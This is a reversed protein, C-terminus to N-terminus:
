CKTLKALLTCGESRRITRLAIRWDHAAFGVAHHQGPRNGRLLHGYFQGEGEMVEFQLLWRQGQSNIEISEGMKWASAKQEPSVFIAHDPHHNLYFSCEYSEEGEPPVTNSLRLTFHIEGEKMEREVEVKKAELTLSHLMEASGWYLSFPADESILLPSTLSSSQRDVLFPRILAAHLHPFPTATLARQSYRGHYHGCFLDFLTAQPQDRNQTHALSSACLEPHWFSLGKQLVADWKGGQAHAMQYAIFLDGWEESSKPFQTPVQEPEFYAHLKALSTPHLPRQGHTKYGFSVLRGMLQRLKLSLEEGLVSSFDALIWYFVPLMDIGLSRKKCQPFEHLYLPFNGDVEFHLLKEILAKGELMNESTRSRLLALAFCLNEFLPIMEQLHLYGTQLSQLKRASALNLQVEQQTM